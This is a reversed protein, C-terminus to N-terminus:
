NRLEVLTTLWYDILGCFPQAQWQLFFERFSASELHSTHISCCWCYCLVVGAFCCNPKCVAPNFAQVSICKICAATITPPPNVESTSTGTSLWQLAWYLFIHRNTATINDCNNPCTQQSIKSENHSLPPISTVIDRHCSQFTKDCDRHSM